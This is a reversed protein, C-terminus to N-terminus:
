SGPALSDVLEDRSMSSRGRLDVEQAVEYLEDHNMNELEERRRQASLDTPREITERYAGTARGRTEIFEKFDKLDQRARDKMFGGKDALHEIAGQPDMEMQLVVRTTQDDLPHFTVVGSNLTGDTAVWAIRQDPTQETIEADWEKSIGLIKASFHVHSDDLQKVETIHDMFLPFDEFQTWQDYAVRVPVDVDIEEIM